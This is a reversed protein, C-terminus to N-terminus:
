IVGNPHSEMGGNLASEGLLAAYAISDELSDRHPNGPNTFLRVQKLILMFAWGEAETMCNGTIANFAAVTSAMSREGGPQDYAAARDDMHQKAAQLLQPATKNMESTIPSHLTSVQGSGQRALPLSKPEGGHTSSTVQTSWKSSTSSNDKTNM